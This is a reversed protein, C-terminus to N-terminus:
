ALSKLYSLVASQSKIENGFDQIGPGMVFRQSLNEFVRLEGTFIKEFKEVLKYLDKKPFSGVDKLDILSGDLSIQSPIVGFRTEIFNEM